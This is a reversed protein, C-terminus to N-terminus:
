LSTIWAFDDRMISEYKSFLLNLDNTCSAIVEPSPNAKYKNKFRTLAFSMALQKLQVTGSYELLKKSQADTIRM